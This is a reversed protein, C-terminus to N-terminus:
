LIYRVTATNIYKVYLINNNLNFHSYKKTTEQIYVKSSHHVITMIIHINFFCTNLFEWVINAQLCHKFRFLGSMIYGYSQACYEVWCNLWFTTFLINAGHSLVITWVFLRFHNVKIHTIFYPTRNFTSLANNNCLINPTFSLTPNEVVWTSQIKTIWKRVELSCLISSHFTWYILIFINGVTIM